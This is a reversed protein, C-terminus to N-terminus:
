HCKRMMQEWEYVITGTQEAKASEYMAKAVLKGEIPKFKKLKGQLFPTYIPRAIEAAKEGFRFEPRQGILLSPRFIHLAPLQVAKLAEEMEGKVRSYFVRSTPNAGIASIVFFQQIGQKKALKATALPYNFDVRKFAEQSGAKKITTGLCCFLDQISVFEKEYSDLNDFDVVIQKLKPHDIALPRRLLVTIETYTSSDLLLQLLEKGVLGTAGVILATRKQKTM